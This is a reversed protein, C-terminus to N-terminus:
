EREAGAWERGRRSEELRERTWGKTNEGERESERARENEREKGRASEGNRHRARDIVCARHTECLFKWEREIESKGASKMTRVIAKEKENEYPRGKPPDM